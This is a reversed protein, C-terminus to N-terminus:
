RAVVQDMKLVGAHARASVGHQDHAAAGHALHLLFVGLSTRRRRGRTGDAFLRHIGQAVVIKPRLSRRSSSARAGPITSTAASSTTTRARGPGVPPSFSASGAWRGREPYKPFAIPRLIAELPRDRAGSPYLDPSSDASSAAAATAARAEIPCGNLRTAPDRDTADRFRKTIRVVRPVKLGNGGGKGGEVTDNKEM